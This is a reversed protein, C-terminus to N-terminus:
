IKELTFAKLASAPQEVNKHYLKKPIRHNLKMFWSAGEASEWDEVTWIERFSEGRIGKRHFVMVPIKVTPANLNSINHTATFEM